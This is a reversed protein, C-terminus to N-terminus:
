TGGSLLYFARRASLLSGGGPAAEGVLLQIPRLSGFQVVFPTQVVFRNGTDVAKKPCELGQFTSDYFLCLCFM